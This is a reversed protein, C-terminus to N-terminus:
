HPHTAVHICMYSNKKPGLIRADNATLRHTLSCTSNKIKLIVFRCSYRCQVFNQWISPSICASIIQFILCAKRHLTILMACIFSHYLWKSSLRMDTSLSNRALLSTALWFSVRISWTRFKTSCFPRDYKSDLFKLVLNPYVNYRYM